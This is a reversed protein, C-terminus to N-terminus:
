EGLVLTTWRGPLNQVEATRNPNNSVMSRLEGNDGVDSVNLNMAFVDGIVPHTVGIEGWPIRAEM